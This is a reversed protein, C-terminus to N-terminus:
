KKAKIYYVDRSKKYYEFLNSVCHYGVAYRSESPSWYFYSNMAKETKGKIEESIKEKKMGIIYFFLRSLIDTVRNQEVFFKAKTFLKDELLKKAALGINYHDKHQYNIYDLIRFPFFTRVEADKGYLSIFHKIIEKAQEVTIKSDVERHEYIHINEASVGLAKCSSLFELDREKIFEEESLNYNHLEKHLSCYQGNNLRQRAPSKSGDTCLIVHVEKNPLLCTKSIDAGMNLLEDDQHPSFYLVIDKKKYVM